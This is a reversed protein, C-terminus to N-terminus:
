PDLIERLQPTPRLRPQIWRQQPTPWCRLASKVGLRPEEMHWPHPRLFILFIFFYFFFFSLFFGLALKSAKLQGFVKHSSCIITDLPVGELCGLLIGPCKFILYHPLPSPYLLVGTSLLMKTTCAGSALGTEGAVLSELSLWGGASSQPQLGARRCAPQNM